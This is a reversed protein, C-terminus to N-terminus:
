FTNSNKAENWAFSINPKSNIQKKFNEPLNGVYNHIEKLINNFAKMMAKDKTFFANDMQKVSNIITAHNKNISNGIATKSYGERYAIYSMAQVYSLFPRLRSKYSLSQIKEYHKHYDRENEKLAKLTCVHLAEISIKFDKSEEPIVHINVGFNKLIRKKFKKIEQEQTLTQNSAM